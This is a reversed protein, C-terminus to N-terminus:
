IDATSRSLVPTRFILIVRTLESDSGVPLGVSAADEHLPGPELQRTIWELPGTANTYSSFGDVLGPSEAQAEDGAATIPLIRGENVTGCVAAAARLLLYRV